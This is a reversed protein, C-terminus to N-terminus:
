LCGRLWVALRIVWPSILITDNWRICKKTCVCIILRKRHREPSGELDNVHARLTSHPNRRRTSRSEVNARRAVTKAIGRADHHMRIGVHPSQIWAMRDAPKASLVDIVKNLSSCILLHVQHEVHQPEFGLRMSILGIHFLGFSQMAVEKDKLCTSCRSQPLLSLDKHADKGKCAHRTCTVFLSPTAASVLIGQTCAHKMKFLNSASNGCCCM